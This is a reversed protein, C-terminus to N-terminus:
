IPLASAPALAFPSAPHYRAPRCLSTGNPESTTVAQILSCVAGSARTSEGWGCSIVAFVPRGLAEPNVPNTCRKEFVPGSYSSAIACRSGAASRLRPMANTWAGSAQAALRGSWAALQSAFESNKSSTTRPSDSARYLTSGAKRRSSERGAAPENSARRCATGAFVPTYRDRSNPGNAAIRTADANDWAWMIPSTDVAFRCGSVLNSASGSPPDIAPLRPPKLGNAM